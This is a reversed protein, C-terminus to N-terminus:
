SDPMLEAAHYSSRVLPACAAERFGLARARREYRAFAEPAVYEAVPAHERSPRLYQGITLLDVGAGRLDRMVSEIEAQTEGLGVMLGSKTLVGPASRGARRLLDVSRAYDAGPRVEPYLRPVTEVNHGLVDPPADLVVSLAEPDGQFDSVLIEVTAAPVAERLARVVAAFHGAGGDPLDDRTVSTVVVHRLGLRRAADAVRDPEEPDLAQPRGGEVACFRCNRTCRDGMILFTALGRGFCEGVNPCRASQCITHIGRSRLARGMSRLAPARAAKPKLWPPLRRADRRGSEASRPSHKPSPSTAM